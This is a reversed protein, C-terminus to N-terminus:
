GGTPAPLPEIPPLIGDDATDRVGYDGPDAGSLLLILALQGLETDIGDVTSLRFREFIPIASQEVRTPEVGVAPEGASGLGQYLGALFRSTPGAQPEASRIVVVGDVPQGFDGNRQEVIEPELADWLPTRGGAVLERALDRGLNGLQEDGVYGSLEQRSTLAAEVASLRLPMTIARMRAVRGSADDNIATQVFDLSQQDVSGVVIVAFSMGALRDESLVPYAGEVFEQAAQQRRELDDSNANAADVQEQLEAIRGNLRDREADDVFGRGSIGVGILIGVVLMLFVAALSAVHYRLDFV